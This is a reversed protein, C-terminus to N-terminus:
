TFASAWIPWPSCSRPFRWSLPAKLAGRSFGAEASAGAMQRNIANIPISLASLALLAKACGLASRRPRGVAHAREAQPANPAMTRSAGGDQAKGNRVVSTRSTTRTTSSPTPTRHEALSSMSTAQASPGPVVPSSMVTCVLNGVQVSHETLLHDHKAARLSRQGKFCYNLWDPTSMQLEIIGDQGIRRWRQSGVGPWAAPILPLLYHGAALQKLQIKEAGLRECCLERRSFSLDAGISELFDRGLLLGLSPVPVVSCWFCFLRGGIVTPLRWRMDSVKTGGNGFRFTEHEPKSTVLSRISEPASQLGHLYGKLWDPGACTRNCASDLAGVLRKDEALQAILAEKTVSHADELAAVFSQSLPNTTVTLVEHGDGAAEEVHETNLTEVVKVHRGGPKKLASKRALGQGPKACEPDGAWHGPLGCDFCPNKATKKPNTKSAGDSPKMYGRDRKVEQLKTRAEKMTLLAEAATEVSEEIEQLTSPDVGNDAAEDLEAALAEAECKLIEELNPEAENDAEMLEVDDDPEADEAESVMAQRAPFPKKFGSFRSSSGSTTSTRYSRNASSAMSPAYSSPRSSPNQSTLFRQMLTGGKNNNGDGFSKRVLPDQSHLDKFLRLVEREITEYEESGQLATDLLQVRLPDLGLKTKFFWGIEGSPLSVGETRLDALAVRFRSCFEAIREGPKRKLELYFLNRLEGRKDLTTKGNIGELAKLLKNLGSLPDEPTIVVEDGTQPDQGKIEPQFQLEEPNFEEGRQRVVGSQRLLWRAALNYKKTGELDLSSTWWKM